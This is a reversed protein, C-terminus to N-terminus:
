ALLQIIEKMNQDYRWFFVRTVGLKKYLWLQFKLFKHSATAYAIVTFNPGYRMRVVLPAVIQRIKGIPIIFFRDDGGNELAPLVKPPLKTVNFGWGGNSFPAFDGPKLAALRAKGAPSSDLVEDSSYPAWLAYVGDGVIKYIANDTVFGADNPGTAYKLIPRVAYNVGRLILFPYQGITPFYVGYEM